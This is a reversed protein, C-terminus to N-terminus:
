DFLARWPAWDAILEAIFQYGTGSPHLGDREQLSATYSPTALLPTLLDMYPIGLDTAVKAYADNLESLRQNSHAIAFGPRKMPMMQEDVPTPGIWLMTRWAKAETAAVTVNKITEELPMRLGKGVIEAADNLGFSMVIAGEIGDPIRAACESKWRDRIMDTTEGGIGLNYFNITKGKAPPLTALRGAWGRRQEDGVGEVNSAGMFCIRAVPM